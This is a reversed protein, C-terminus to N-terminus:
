DFVLKRFDAYSLIQDAIAKLLGLRQERMKQDDVMVMIKDFYNDIPAQMKKLEAFVLRQDASQENAVLLQKYAQYLEQEVQEHYAAPDLNAHEAKTALNIVRTLSDVVQKFNPQAMEVTLLEAREVIRNLDNKEASLVADIVDYRIAKDQLLRKIRLEFFDSLERMLQEREKFLLGAAEYCDITQKYLSELTLSPQKAQVIQVIGTAARRLGLPDQSGTPIKGIIFAGVTNDLKDALSVLQGALTAPLQDGSFRPLYHENIATAVAAPEGQKLAYLEGMYGQLEPFENVMNTVLDFKCIEATRQCTARDSATTNLQEALLTTLAVLRTSKEAVTGLKDQFILQSLKALQEDIKVKQDELYFFCADALRASIVKENGKAVIDLSNADGNRVAVFYPLLKGARDEVPFYRQHVKMTTVLVVAPLELYENAYSGVLITPYEVLNVVENLLEHDIPVQWNRERTLQEIQSIIMETRKAPDVVVYEKALLAPYQRPETVIVPGGLFRHGYSLNGSKIGAVAFPLVAEGYLAVLWHIPRLYRLENTGWRMNKPFTMGSVLEPLVAALLREVEQGAVEKRLFVYEVGNVSEVYLDDTSGSQGRAFGETARSWSGDENRAVAMSPGRKIEVRDDQRAAVSGVMVALRRPTSYTAIEQYSIAEADLWAILRDALQQSAGDIYRAPMEELGIEILLDKHEV